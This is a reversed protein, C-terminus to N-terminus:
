YLYTILSSNPVRPITALVLEILGCLNRPGRRTPSLAISAQLIKFYSCCDFSPEFYGAQSLNDVRQARDARSGRTFLSNETMPLQDHAHRAAGSDM